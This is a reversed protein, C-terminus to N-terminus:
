RSTDLTADSDSDLLNQAVGMLAGAPSDAPLDILELASVGRTNRTTLEVLLCAALVEPEVPLIPSRLTRWQYENARAAGTVESARDLFARTATLSQRRKGEVSESRRM